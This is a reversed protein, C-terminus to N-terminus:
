FTRGEADFISNRYLLPLTVPCLVADLLQPTHGARCPLISQWCAAFYLSCNIVKSEQLQSYKFFQKLWSKTNIKPSLFFIVPGVTNYEHM